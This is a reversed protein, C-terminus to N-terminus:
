SLCDPIFNYRGTMLLGNIVTTTITTTTTINHIIVIVKLAGVHKLSLESEVAGCVEALYRQHYKFGPAESRSRSLGSQVSM